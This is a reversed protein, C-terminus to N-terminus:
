RGRQIAHWPEGRPPLASALAPRRHSHSHSHSHCSALLSADSDSLQSLLKNQCCTSVDGGGSSDSRCILGNYCIHRQGPVWNPIVSCSHWLQCRCCCCLRCRCHRCRCAASLIALLLLLLLLRFLSDLLLLLLLPHGCPQAELLLALEALLLLRSPFRLALCGLQCALRRGGRCGGVPCCLAAGGLWGESFEAQQRHRGIPQGADYLAPAHPQQIQQQRDSSGQKSSSSSGQM